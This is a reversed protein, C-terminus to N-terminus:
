WTRWLNTDIHVFRNHSQPYYGVGGLRLAFAADRLDRTSVDERRLDLAKAAMHPSNNATGPLSANTTPTRYGSLIHFPAGEGLQQTLGKLWTLLGADMQVARDMRWDRTISCFAQWDRNSIGNGMLFSLTEATHPNYLAITVRRRAVAPTALMALGGALLTRRSLM